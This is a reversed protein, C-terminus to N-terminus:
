GAGCSGLCCVRLVVSLLPPCMFTTTMPPVPKTPDDMKALEALLTDLDIGNEDENRGDTILLVSNVKEPDYSERVRQVAALTTDYLGTAGGLREPLSQIIGAIEGKHALDALPAIPSLDEYDLDGNRATSFVWM